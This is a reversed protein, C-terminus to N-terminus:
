TQLPFALANGTQLEFHETSFKSDRLQNKQYTKSQQKETGAFQGIKAFAEAFANVIKLIRHFFSRAVGSRCVDFLLLYM